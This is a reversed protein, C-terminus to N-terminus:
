FGGSAFQEPDTANEERFIHDLMWVWIFSKTTTAAAPITQKPRNPRSQQMYAPDHPLLPTSVHQMRPTTATTYMTTYITTNMTPHYCHHLYVTTTFIFQQMRPTTHYCHHLYHHVYHHPLLPASLSYHHLYISQKMCTTHYCHHLYHHVYNHPFLPTSLSYHHLYISQQM